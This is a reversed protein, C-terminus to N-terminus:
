NIACEPPFTLLPLFKAGSIRGEPDKPFVFFAAVFTAARQRDSEFERYKTARSAARASTVRRSKATRRTKARQPYVNEENQPPLPQRQQGGDSRKRLDHMSEVYDQGGCPFKARRFRWAVAYCQYSVM